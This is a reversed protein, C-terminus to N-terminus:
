YNTKFLLNTLIKIDANEYLKKSTMSLLNKKRTYKVIHKEM